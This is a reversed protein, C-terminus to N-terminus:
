SAPAGLAQTILQIQEPQPMRMGHEIEALLRVTLGTREALDIYALGAALRLARLGAGESAREAVPVRKLMARLMIMYIGVIAIVSAALTLTPMLETLVGFGEKRLEDTVNMLASEFPLSVTKGFGYQNSM